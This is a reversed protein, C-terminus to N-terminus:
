CGPQIPRQDDDADRCAKVIAAQGADGVPKGDLRVDGIWTDVTAKAVVVEDTFKGGACIGYKEVTGIDISEPGVM